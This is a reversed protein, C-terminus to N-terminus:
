PLTDGLYFESNYSPHVTGTELLLEALKVLESMVIAPTSTAKAKRIVSVRYPYAKLGTLTM